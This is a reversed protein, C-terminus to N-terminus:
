KAKKPKPYQPQEPRVKPKAWRDLKAPAQPEDRLGNGGEKPDQPKTSKATLLRDAERFIGYVRLREERLQREIKACEEVYAALEEPTDPILSPDDPASRQLDNGRRLAKEGAIKLTIHRIKERQLYDLMRNELPVPPFSSELRAVIEANMSRGYSQAAEAIQARLEESMRLKFQPDERSMRSHHVVTTNVAIFWPPEIQWSPVM